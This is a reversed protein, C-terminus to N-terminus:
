APATVRAPRDAGRGALDRQSRTVLVPCRARQVVPRSTSGLVLSGLGGLGRTGVVVLSAHRSRDVLVRAAQGDVLECSVRVDHRLAAWSRARELTRGAEALAAAAPPEPAYGLAWSGPALAPAAASWAVVVTVGTGLRVAQDCGAQLADYAACSGDFGVLVPGHAGIPQSGPPVVAVPCAARHLVGAAVSGLLAARLRGAGRRGVVALRARAAHEAIVAAPPGHLVVPRVTVGPQAQEAVRAGEEAVQRVQEQVQRGLWSDGAGGGPQGALGWAHVVELAWGRDAARAAAWRVAAASEPSADYGVVVRDDM